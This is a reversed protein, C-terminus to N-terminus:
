KLSSNHGAKWMEAPMDFSLKLINEEIFIKGSM